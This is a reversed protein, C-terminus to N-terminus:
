RKKREHLKRRKNKDAILNKVHDNRTTLIRKSEKMVLTLVHKSKEKTKKERTLLREFEKRSFSKRWQRKRCRQREKRRQKTKRLRKKKECDFDNADNRKESNFDIINDNREKWNKVGFFCDFVFKVNILWSISNNLLICEQKM